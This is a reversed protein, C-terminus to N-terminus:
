EEWRRFRPNHHLVGHHGGIHERANEHLPWVAVLGPHPEDINEYMTRRIEPQTRVIDWLRFEALGTNAAVHKALSLAAPSADVIGGNEAFEGALKGNIYHRRQNGDSTVAWHVWAQIPISGGYRESSPYGMYSYLLIEGDRERMDVSYGEQKYAQKKIVLMNTAASNDLRVWGELTIEGAPNLTERHSIEVYSNYGTLLYRSYPLLHDEEEVGKEESCATWLMASLLLGAIGNVSSAFLHKM